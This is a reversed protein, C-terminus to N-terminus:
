LEILTGDPNETPKKPTVKSIGSLERLTGSPNRTLEM